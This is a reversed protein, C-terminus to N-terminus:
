SVHQTISKNYTGRCIKKRDQMFINRSATPENIAAQKV